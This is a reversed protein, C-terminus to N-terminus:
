AATVRVAFTEDASCVGESLFGPVNRLAERLRARLAPEESAWALVPGDGWAALLAGDNSPMARTLTAARSLGRTSVYLAWVPADGERRWTVWWARGDDTAKLQGRVAGRRILAPVVTHGLMGGLEQRRGRFRAAAPHLAGEVWRYRRGNLIFDQRLPSSSFAHVMPLFM